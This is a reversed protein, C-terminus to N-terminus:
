KLILLTKKKIINPQRLLVFCKLINSLCITENKLINTGRQFMQGGTNVFNVCTKISITKGPAGPHRLRYLMGHQARCDTPLRSSSERGRGRM